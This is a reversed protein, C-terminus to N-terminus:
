ERHTQPHLNSISTCCPPNRALNQPCRIILLRHSSSTLLTLNSEDTTSIPVAGAVFLSFCFLRDGLNNSNLSAPVCTEGTVIDRGELAVARGQIAKAIRPRKHKWIFKVTSKEIEKIFTMKIPIANFM